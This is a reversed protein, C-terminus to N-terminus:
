QWLHKFIGSHGFKGTLYWPFQLISNPYSLLCFCKRKTKRRGNMPQYITYVVNRQAAIAKPLVWGISYYGSYYDTLSAWKNSNNKLPIGETDGTFQIAM